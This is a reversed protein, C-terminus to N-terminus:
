TLGHFTPKNPGWHIVLKPKCYPKACNDFDDIATEIAGEQTAKDEFSAYWVTSIDRGFENIKKWKETSLCEYIKNRQESNVGPFDATVLVYSSMSILKKSDFTCKLTTM